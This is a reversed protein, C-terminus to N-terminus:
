GQFKARAGLNYILSLYLEGPTVDTDVLGLVEAVYESCVVSHNHWTPLKSGTLAYVKTRIGIWVASLWGYVASGARNVAHTQIATWPLPAAIIDFQRNAYASASVIRTGGHPSAEAILLRDSYWFVFMAHSYPSNTWASILWAWPTTGNKIFVVDGDEAVARLQEYNM